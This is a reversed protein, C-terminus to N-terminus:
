RKNMHIYIDDKCKNEISPIDLLYDLKLIMYMHSIYLWNMKVIM